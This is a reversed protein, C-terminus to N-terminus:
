LRAYTLSVGISTISFVLTSSSVTYTFSVKVDTSDVTWYEGAGSAATYGYTTAVAGSYTTMQGDSSFSLAKTGGIGWDGVITANAPDITPACGALFLAMISFVLLVKKM